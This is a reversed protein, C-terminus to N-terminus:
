LQTVIASMGDHASHCFNGTSLSQRAALTIGTSLVRAQHSDGPQESVVSNTISEAVIRASGTSSTTRRFTEDSPNVFYIIFSNTSPRIMLATGQQVESDLLAEFVGANVNGIALSRSTRIEHAMRQFLERANDTANLTRRTVHFMSLGYINALLVGMLLISFITIAVLLEPLTFGAITRGSGPNRAQSAVPLKM